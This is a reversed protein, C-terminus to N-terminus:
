WKLEKSCEDETTKMGEIISDTMGPISDLYLTEQIASWDSESLMIVSGTKGQIQIPRHSQVISNILNYIDKRAETANITKM